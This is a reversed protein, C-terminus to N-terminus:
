KKKPPEVPAPSTNRTIARENNHDFTPTRGRNSESFNPTQPKKVSSQSNPPSTPKSPKKTAMILTMLLNGM